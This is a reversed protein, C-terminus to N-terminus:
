PRRIRTFNSSNNYCMSVDTLDVINDGTLDTKLYEGYVFNSADNYIPIVDFLTIFGDQNVDGSFLCYKGSKLKLNSGYAQSSATTFDYNYISNDNTLYEGGDKSWTEISNLHKISVYYSDTQATNFIFLGSLSISDIIKKSSDVISFPGHTNRLYVTFTDNRALQNFLPYYLGETLIKLNIKIFYPPPPIYINSDIVSYTSNLKYVNSGAQGIVYGREVLVMVGGSGSLGPATIWTEGGDTTLATNGGSWSGSMIFDPDELCIGSGWGSFSNTHNLSWTEGTNTSKYINGGPWNTFFALTKDFVTNCMTPIESSSTNSYKLSWNFGGNTSKFLDALGSSTTGDALLITNPEDYTVMIDCPSRFPYNNSIDNFTAGNDTSKYFGGNDPGFYYVSPNNQDVQLPEGYNSFNKTISTTWTQGYNTTRVVKDGGSSEIACLWINTDAASVFFSHPTTANPIQTGIQSWNEGRNRSVYTRGSFNTFISNRNTPHVCLNEGLSSGSVGPKSQWSMNITTGIPLNWTIGANTTKLVAKNLSSVAFGLSSNYYFIDVLNAMMPNIEFNLFNSSGNKNNRIFGGGGCIHVDNILSGTVGRIDSRIRTNVQAWTFISNKLLLTGYEGVACIGDSFYKVKLLNRSTSTTELTWNLGGDSSIYVKGNDGVVVGNQSDKFSLSNLKENSIGSNMLNWNMGGNTSKYVRGEEGCLFGLDPTIFKISNITFNQNLNFLIISNLSTNSKYVRGSEGAFWVDNGLSYVSKLNDATYNYILWNNGSNPSRYIKGSDGVAFVNVGDPTHVSNFGQAFFYNPLFIFFLLTFIKKM